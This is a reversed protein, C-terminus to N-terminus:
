KSYMAESLGGSGGDAKWEINFLANTLEGNGLVRDGYLEGDDFITRRVREIEILEGDEGLKWAFRDSNEM